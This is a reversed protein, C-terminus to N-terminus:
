DLKREQELGHSASGILAVEPNLIVHVPVGALMSSFRGKDQFAQLFFSKKLFPLIRPPIGGGLYVGGTALVKLALNGAESALLAAFLDMTAVAIEAKGEDAAQGIVPTRDPASELQEKLWAPEPYLGRECLFDYLNPIGIGSCVREWSVHGFHKQLYALLEIQLPNEPGFGAHGGESAYPHYRRGDWALFAEGLGTGPAIVALAGHGESTGPQLTELDGAALTPVAHAIAELDNLLRVPTGLEESLLAADVVWPLNTVQARGDLVPGAVGFVARSLRLDKGKLFDHVMAELSAHGSSPYTAKDVFYRSGQHPDIIALNTKTGGIDGALLFSSM